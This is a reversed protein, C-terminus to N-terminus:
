RVHHFMKETIKYKAMMKVQDSIIDEPIIDETGEELIYIYTYKKELLKLKVDSTLRFGAGLM